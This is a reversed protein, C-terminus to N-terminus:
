RLLMRKLGRLWRILPRPILLPAITVPLKLTNGIGVSSLDRRRQWVVPLLEKLKAGQKRHAAVIGLSHLALFRRTHLEIRRRMQLDKVTRDATRTILNALKRLDELHREMALNSTETASHICYAGCTENVLGAKGTLLLPLHRALDGAFPWDTPFGNGARLADTRIITTCGQPIIRGKLYEELIDTGDWVGTGLKRSARAPLTRREAVVYGDGLAMIISMHPETKILAVCRELLWPSIKDDDPVFVIYEGKAEALCANWNPFLGINERQKIVRLRQDIFEELVAPTQDTSANDSVVIEFNQYTQALAARVCDRLWHARNFTPIAITVLPDNALEPLISPSATMATRM